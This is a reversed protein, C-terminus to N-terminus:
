IFLCSTINFINGNIYRSNTEIFTHDILFILFINVQGYLLSLFLRISENELVLGGNNKKLFRRFNEPLIINFLNEFNKIEIDDVNKEPSQIKM